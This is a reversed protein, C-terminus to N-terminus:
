PQVKRNEGKDWRRMRSTLPLTWGLVPGAGTQGVVRLYGPETQVWSTPHVEMWHLQQLLHTWEMQKLSGPLTRLDLNGKEQEVGKEWIKWNQIQNVPNGCGPFTRSKKATRFLQQIKNILGPFDKFIDPLNEM